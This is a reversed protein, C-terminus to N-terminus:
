GIENTKKLREFCIIENKRLFTLWKGFIENTKESFSRETLDITSYFRELDTFLLYCKLIENLSITRRLLLSITRKKFKTAFFRKNLLFSNKELEHM